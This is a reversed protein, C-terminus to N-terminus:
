LFFTVGKGGSREVFLKEINRNENVYDCLNKCNQALNEAAVAARHTVVVFIYDLM